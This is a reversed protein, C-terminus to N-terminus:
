SRSPFDIHIVAVKEDAVFLVFIRSAVAPWTSIAAAELEVEEAPPASTLGTQPIPATDPRKSVIVQLATSVKPIMTQHHTQPGKGSQKRGGVRPPLHKGTQHWPWSM